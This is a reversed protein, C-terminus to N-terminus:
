EEMILNSQHTKLLGAEKAMGYFISDPRALLHDPTDFEVIKGADLVMIKSSDMITNLRLFLLYIPIYSNYYTNPAIYRYIPNKQWESKGHFWNQLIELRLTRFNSNKAM